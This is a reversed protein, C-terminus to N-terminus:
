SLANCSVILYEFDYVNKIFLTLSSDNRNLATKDAHNEYQLNTVTYSYRNGEADTFLVSDGVSIEPYFDYQGKQSTAGIKITQDYVSGSFRCPYKSTKEWDACIPLASDFKPMELVGLFDTGEISIAPMTNNSKEELVAGQPEPILTRITNIYEQNKQESASISWQWLSLVVLAALLLCVGSIVCFKKTVNYRNKNM